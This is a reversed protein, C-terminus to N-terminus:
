KRLAGDEEAAKEEAEEEAEEKVAEDEVEEEIADEDVAKDETAEQVDCRSVEEQFKVLRACDEKPFSQSLIHLINGDARLDPFLDHPDPARIHSDITEQMELTDCKESLHEFIRARLAKGEAVISRPLKLSSETPKSTRSEASPIPFGPTLGMELPSEMSLKPKSAPGLEPSEVSFDLGSESEPSSSFPDAAARPPTCLIEQQQSQSQSSM